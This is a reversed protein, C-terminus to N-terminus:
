PLRSMSLQQWRRLSFCATSTSAGTSSRYRERSRVVSTIVRIEEIEDSAARPWDDFFGKAGSVVADLL